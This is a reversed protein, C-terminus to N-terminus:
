GYCRAMVAECRRQRADPVSAREISDLMDALEPLGQLLAVVEDVALQHTVASTFDRTAARLAQPSPDVLDTPDHPIRLIEGLDVAIRMEDATVLTEHLKEGPRPGLVRVQLTSHAL